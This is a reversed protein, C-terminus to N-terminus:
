WIDLGERQSRMEQAFERLMQRIGGKWPNRAVLARGEASKPGTSREWPRWTKILEAQRAKREPTWGNSMSAELLKNLGSHSQGRAFGVRSHISQELLDASLFELLAFERASFAPVLRM